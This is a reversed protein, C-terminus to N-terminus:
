RSAMHDAGAHKTTDTTKRGFLDRNHSYHVYTVEVGVNNVDVNGLRHSFGVRTAPGVGEQLLCARVTVILLGSRKGAALPGGLVL